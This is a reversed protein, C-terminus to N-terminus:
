PVVCEEVWESGRIQEEEAEGENLRSESVEAPDVAVEEGSLVPRRLEVEAAATMGDRGEEEPLRWGAVAAEEKATMGHEEVAEEEESKLQAEVEEVLVVPIQWCGGVVEEAM